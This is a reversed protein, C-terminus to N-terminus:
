CRSSCRRARWRRRRRAIGRIRTRVAEEVLKDLACELQVQSIMTDEELEDIRAKMAPLLDSTLSPNVRVAVLRDRHRWLHAQM